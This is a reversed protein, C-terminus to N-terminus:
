YISTYVSLNIIYIYIYTYIYIYDSFCLCLHLSCKLFVFYVSLLVFVLSETRVNVEVCKNIDLSYNSDQEIM